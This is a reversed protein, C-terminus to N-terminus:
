DVPQSFDSQTVQRCERVNGVVILLNGVQLSECFEGSLIAEGSGAQLRASILPFCAREGVIPDDASMGNIWRETVAVPLAFEVSDGAPPNDATFLRSFRRVKEGGARFRM